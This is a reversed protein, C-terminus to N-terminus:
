QLGVAIYNVATGAVTSCSPNSTSGIDKWLLTFGSSTANVVTPLCHDNALKGSRDRVGLTVIVNTGAPFAANFTVAVSNGSSVTAVGARYV